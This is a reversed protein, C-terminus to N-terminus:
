KHFEILKNEERYRSPTVGYEDKFYKSFRSPSSFHMYESIDSVSAESYKLLNAAHILREKTIYEQITMGTKQHFKRSMYTRSFHLDDAMQNISIKKYLHKAIYDKCLDAVVGGKKGNKYQNVLDIFVTVYDINHNLMDEINNTKALKQLFVDSYDFAVAPPVGGQIAARAALSIASVKMYEMQKFNSNKALVGVKDPDFKQYVNKPIRGDRINRLLEMEVDYSEREKEFRYKYLEYETQSETIKKHFNPDRESKNIKTKRGTIEFFTFEALTFIKELDYGSIVVEEKNIGYHHSFAHIQMTTACNSTIPGFVYYHEKYCFYWIYINEGVDKFCLSDVGPEDRIIGQYEFVNEGCSRKIIHKNDDMIVWNLGCLKQIYELFDDIREM